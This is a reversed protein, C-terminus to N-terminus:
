STKMNLASYELIRNGSAIAKEAQAAPLYKQIMQLVKQAEPPKGLFDTAGTLKAQSRNMFNDRSTLIIIPTKQFSPTQRLFKCLSHGNADPMVLDLFILDPKQKVLTAMEQLPHLIKLLRYGAPTLIKEMASGIVPSDDICAILPQYNQSPNAQLLLAKPLDPIEKLEVAGKRILANMALAVAWTPQRLQYSIDWLTYRGNLLQMLNQSTEPVSTQSAYAETLIPALNPSLSVLNKAQWQEWLKLSQQYLPELEFLSVETLMTAKPQWSSTVTGTYSVVSFLVELLSTQIINKAQETTLKGQAVGQYLLQYDWLEDFNPTKPNFTPANNRIARHWRRLRHLDDTAYFLSGQLFYFQCQRNEGLELVLKGTARRQSVVQIFNKFKELGPAKTNM